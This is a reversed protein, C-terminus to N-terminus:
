LKSFVNKVDQLLVNKSADDVFQQFTEKKLRMSCYYIAMTLFFELTKDLDFILTVFQNQMDTTYVLYTVDRYNSKGRYRYAEHLFCCTKKSLISDRLKKANGSKFDVFKSEKFERSKRIKAEEKERYWDATGSLYSCCIGESVNLDTPNKRKYDKSHPYLAIEAVYTKEVLSSVRYDFPPLVLKKSAIKTDWENAAKTHTETDSNDTATNMAKAANLVGYYWSIIAVRSFVQADGENIKMRRLASFYHLSMIIQLFVQNDAEENVTKPQVQDYFNPLLSRSQDCLLALGHLWHVAGLFVHKNKEQVRSPLRELLWSM